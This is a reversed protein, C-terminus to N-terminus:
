VRVMKQWMFEDIIEVPDATTVAELNFTDGENIVTSPGAAAGGAVGSAAGTALSFRAAETALMNNLAQDFGTDTFAALTDTAITSAADTAVKGYRELGDRMGFMLMKGVWEFQKSPSRIGFFDLIADWANNAFSMIADTIMHGYRYLGDLIGNIISIGVNGFWAGVNQVQNYLNRPLNYLWTTLTGITNNIGDIIGQVIERGRSYFHGAINVVLGALQAPLSLFFLYVQGIRNTVGDWLGRVIESGSHALWTGATAFLGIIRYPIQRLDIILNGLNETIGDWLGNILEYGKEYIRQFPAAFTDELFGVLANPLTQTFFRSLVGMVAIFAGGFARPITRTFFDPLTNTFFNGIAPLLIQTAFAVFDEGFKQVILVVVGAIAGGILVPIGFIAALIGGAIATIAMIGLDKGYQDWLERWIDGTAGPVANAFEEFGSAFEDLDPALPLPTEGVDIDGLDFSPLEQEVPAGSEPASKLIDIYERLRKNQAATPALRVLKGLEEGLIAAKTGADLYVGNMELQAIRAEANATASAYIADTLDLEAQRLDRAIGFDRANRLAEEAEAVNETSDVMDDRAQALEREADRYATDDAIAQRLDSVEQEKEIIDQYARETERLADSVAEEADALERASAGERARQLEEESEAIEQNLNAVEQRAEQLGLEADAIDRNSAGEERLYNLYWEADSVDQNARLLRLQANRLDNTAKVINKLEPGKRLDALEQEADLLKQQSDSYSEQADMVDELAEALSDQQEQRANALKTEAKALSQQAKESSRRANSLRRELDSLIRTPDQANELAENYARQADLLDFQARSQTQLASVYDVHSQAQEDLKKRLKELERIEDETNFSDEFDKNANTVDQIPGLISAVEKRTEAFTRSLTIVADAYEKASKDGNEYAAATEELFKKYATSTATGQILAQVEALSSGYRDVGAQIRPWLDSQKIWSATARDLQNNNQVLINYLDANATVMSTMASESGRLRSGFVTLLISGVTLVAGLVGLGKGLRSVWLTMGSLGSVASAAGSGLAASGAAATATSSAFQALGANATAIQLASMRGAAVGVSTAMLQAQRAANNMAVGSATLGAVSGASSVGLQRLASVALVLRPGLLIAASALGLIAVSLGLIVGVAIKIPAPLASMGALFDRLREVVFVIIPAFTAGFGQAALFIENRLIQLQSSLTKYRKSAIETIATGSAFADRSTELSSSLQLSSNVTQSQAQALLLLTQTQRAETIGLSGLIGIVNEGADNLRGLGDIFDTFADAANTNFDEQLQSATKGSIRAFLELEDGGNAVAQIIDAFTKQFATGGQESRVGASRLAGAMGIVEAASLNAVSAIGAIRNAIDVIEQETAATSRGVELISSALNDYGQGAVGTLGAIRALNTAASNATLDTTADLDAVVKTFSVIDSEAVGLAGAAEAIGALTSAAVPTTSAIEELGNVINQLTQANRENAQAATETATQARYTTREVGAIADEWEMYANISAGVGTAVAAPIAALAVGLNRLGWWNAATALELQKLAGVAQNAGSVFQNANLTATGHINGVSVNSM